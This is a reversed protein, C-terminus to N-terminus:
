GELAIGVSVLDEQIRQIFARANEILRSFAEPEWLVHLSDDALLRRDQERALVDAWEAEILGPRILVAGFLRRVGAHSKPIANHVLLAARAAHMVAYYSRSITDEFLGEAQLIEAARLANKAKEFEARVNEPNM